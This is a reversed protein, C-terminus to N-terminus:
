DNYRIMDDSDPIKTLGGDVVLDQGTVFGSDDSVLFLVSKAVDEVRLEVGKLSSLAGYVNMTRKAEEVGRKALSTVVASPSVCNVRIGYEGLQKSASRVLGLVAHKGMVYDTRMSAGRSAVISGTCVICGRVHKEVMARAAYKVCAAMGRVNIGYLHDFEQLDLDLITQSSQSVIGANSFMIDLQGYTQVTFDILSIVQQENSVDCHFYTCCNSGISSAVQEGKENQIDAIVVFSGHNALLRATAEGIGSAGGTIISIKGALKQTTSTAIKAEM